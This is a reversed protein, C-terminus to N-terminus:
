SLTEITGVISNPLWLSSTLPTVNFFANELYFTLSMTLDSIRVLLM